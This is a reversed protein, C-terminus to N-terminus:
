RSNIIFLYIQIMKKALVVYNDPKIHFMYNSKFQKQDIENLKASTIGSNPLAEDLVKKSYRLCKENLQIDDRTNQICDVSAKKIIDTIKSAINYKREMIDFLIQDVTRDNTEKKM